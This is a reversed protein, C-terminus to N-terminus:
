NAVDLDLFLRRRVSDRLRRRFHPIGRGLAPRCALLRLPELCATRAYAGKEKLACGGQWAYACHWRRPHRM